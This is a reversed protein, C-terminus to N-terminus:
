RIMVTDEKVVTENPWDFPNVVEDINGWISSESETEENPSDDHLLDLEQIPRQLCKIEIDCPDRFDSEDNRAICRGGRRGRAGGRGRVM